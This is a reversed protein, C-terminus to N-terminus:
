RMEIETIEFSQACIDETDFTEYLLGSVIVQLGDEQFSIDLNCAFLDRLVQGDSLNDTLITYVPCGDTPAMLVASENNVVGVVGRGEDQFCNGEPLNNDDDSNCGALFTFAFFALLVAHKTIKM